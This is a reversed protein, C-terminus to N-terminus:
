DSGLTSPSGRLEAYIFYPRIRGGVVYSPLTSYSIGPILYFDERESPPGIPQQTVPDLPAPETTRENSLRLFLVRQWRGLAETLGAGIEARESLTDGLEEEALTATFELKELAVDMVPIAYRASIQKLVSSGLL